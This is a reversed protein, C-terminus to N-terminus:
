LALDNLIATARATAAKLEIEILAELEAQEEPSLSQGQDRATRWREMLEALRKQQEADFFQDPRQSQVIVLTGIEDDPLQRTLTDLAEGATKGISQKNGAVAHYSVGGGQTPIPLISVKTM